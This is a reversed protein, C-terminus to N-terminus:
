YYKYDDDVTAAEDRQPSKIEVLNAQYARLAKAYDDKTAKGDMFLTQIANLADNDGSGVAIMFHKLARDMNGAKYEYAGLNYRARDVGGIAALEWYHIAKKEEREVGNGVHYADGINYYADATHGLEASRHFLELAKGYDQPLGFLGESYCCGLNTMAEADGLDMRKKIQEMMMEDTTPTPIRCFPCLGVFGDRKLVAYICGSCIIKGCCPKYTRGTYLSPLPLMCIPCDEAPPPQKFLKEDHLKAEKKERELQEEQL